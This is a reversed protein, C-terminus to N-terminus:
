RGNLKSNLRRLAREHERARATFYQLEDQLRTRRDELLAREDQRERAHAQEAQRNLEDPGVAEPERFMARGVDEVYGLESRRALFRPRDTM